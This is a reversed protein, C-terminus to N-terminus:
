YISVFWGQDVLEAIGNHVESLLGSAQQDLFERTINKPGQFEVTNLKTVSYVEKDHHYIIPNYSLEKFVKKYGSDILKKYFLEHNGM